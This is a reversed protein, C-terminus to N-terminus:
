MTAALAGGLKEGLYDVLPIVRSYPMRSPGFVGLSGLTEGGVRYSRVILSFDLESTLDSEEGIVVRVGEGEMCQNLLSVLRAKDSFTEFLRRVRDLDALEPQHLLSEAGDVLVDPGSDLGLGDAALGIADRLLEDVQAREDEMLVLLRDRIQSLTLGAFNETLYNSVRMLEERPLHRPTEIVKTEVFGNLAISVCLVRRGSLPVFELSKLVTHGMTPTLVVGVQSSLESLLHSTASALNESDGLQANLNEDIYRREKLSVEDAEMLSDIFLHYGRPTPVRGSSIHPQHLYGLEELDAMINRISAASLEHRDQKAVRRSSVPEGSVVFTHIVDRLIELDRDTLGLENRRGAM